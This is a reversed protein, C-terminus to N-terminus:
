GGSLHDNVLVEDWGLDDGSPDSVRSHSRSQASPSFVYDVSASRRDRSAPVHDPLGVSSFSGGPPPLGDAAEAARIAALTQEARREVKRRRRERELERLSAAHASRAHAVSASLAHTSSRTSTRGANSRRANVSAAGGVRRVARTGLVDSRHVSASGTTRRPADFNQGEDPHSPNPGDGVLHAPSPGAGLPRLAAEGHGSPARHSHSSYPPKPRPRTRWGQQRRVRNADTTAASHGSRGSHSSWSHDDTRWSAADDPASTWSAASETASQGGWSPRSHDSPDPSWSLASSAVGSWPGPPESPSAPATGGPDPPSPRAAAVRPTLPPLADVGILPDASVAGEFMFEAGAAPPTTGRSPLMRDLVRAYVAQIGERSEQYHRYHTVYYDAGLDVGQILAYASLDSGLADAAVDFRGKAQTLEAWDAEGDHVLDEFQNRRHTMLTQSITIARQSAAVPRLYDANSDGSPILASAGADTWLVDPPADYREEAYILDARDAGDDYGLAELLSRRPTALRPAVAAASQRDRGEQPLYDDNEDTM